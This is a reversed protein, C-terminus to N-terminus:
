LRTHRIAASLTCDDRPTKLPTPALVGPPYGCGRISSDWIYFPTKNAHLRRVDERLSATMELHSVIGFVIDISQSCKNYEMAHPDVKQFNKHEDKRDVTSQIQLSPVRLRPPRSHFGLNRVTPWSAWVTWSVEGGRRRGAERKSVTHAWWVPRGKHWSM